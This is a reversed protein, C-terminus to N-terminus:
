EDSLQWVYWITNLMYHINKYIMANAILYNFRLLVLNNTWENRIPQRTKSWNDIKNIRMIFILTQISYVTPIGSKYIDKDAFLTSLRQSGDEQGNGAHFCHWSLRKIEYENPILLADGRPNWSQMKITGRWLILIAVVVLEILTSFRWIKYDGSLAQQFNRVRDEGNWIMEINNDFWSSTLIDSVSNVNWEKSTILKVADPRWLKTMVAEFLYYLLRYDVSASNKM